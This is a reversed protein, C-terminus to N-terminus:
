HDFEFSIASPKNRKNKRAAYYAEFLEQLMLLADEKRVQNDYNFLNM